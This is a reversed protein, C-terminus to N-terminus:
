YRLSGIKKIFIVRQWLATSIPAGMKRLEKIYYYLSRESIGLKKALAAPTGTKKRRIQEHIDILKTLKALSM